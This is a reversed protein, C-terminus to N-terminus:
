YIIHLLIYLLQIYYNNHHSAAVFLTCVRKLRWAMTTHRPVVYPRTDHYSMTTHRPVVHDHTTTRPVVPDHSTTRCPRTDHYSMTTHRPVHYSLTTHRPVVHDHTTTRCPRTDHYSMTTHRPVVHDHTTTRYPRTDHYSMTTHRPVVHDHTTTRCPRTDHYTTRYLCRVRSVHVRTPGFTKCDLRSGYESIRSRQVRKRSGEAKTMGRPLPYYMQYWYVLVVSVTSTILVRITPHWNFNSCRKFNM